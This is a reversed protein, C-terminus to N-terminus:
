IHLPLHAIHSQQDAVPLVVGVSENKTSEAVYELGHEHLRLPTLPVFTFDLKLFQQRLALFHEV